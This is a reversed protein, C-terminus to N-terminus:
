LELDPAEFFDWDWTREVATEVGKGQRGEVFRTNYDVRIRYPKVGFALLTSWEAEDTPELDCYYNTHENLWTAFDMEMQGFLTSGKPLQNVVVIAVVDSNEGSRALLYNM